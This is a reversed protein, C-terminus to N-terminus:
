LTATYTDHKVSNEETCYAAYTNEYLVYVYGSYYLM